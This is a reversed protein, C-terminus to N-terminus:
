RNKKFYEKRPNFTKIHLNHIYHCRQLDACIWLVGLELAKNETRANHDHM